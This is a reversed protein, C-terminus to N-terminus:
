RLLGVQVSLSLGVGPGSSTLVKLIRCSPRHHLWKSGWEPFEADIVEESGKDEQARSGPQKGVRKQRLAGLLVWLDGHPSEKSKVVLGVLLAGPM